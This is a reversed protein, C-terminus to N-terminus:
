RWEGQLAFAAWYYPPRWQKQKWLDVQADRLALSAPKGEKLMGEYFHRMLEATAHDDVNWLSSVVRAAGAYMFGRTLGLLGEGKVEKGLATQCASLVVLDAGLKLNYIEHLRLFGDQPQGKQDVLSLVVGSLEPHLSNLLGHTAFHLIRYDSLDASSATEHSAAFDVAKLGKQASVLSAIADAEQRSFRLRRFSMLGSEKASREVESSSNLQSASAQQPKKEGSTQSTSVRSDDSAFVPDALVAVAKPAPARGALERRLEALVSASPLSVIEHGVILPTFTQPNRIASRPDNSKGAGSRRGSQPAPLAAFPIYQLAGDSVILLRKAGLQSDAPGLVMQSLASAANLYEGDAHGVRVRRHEPTESPLRQNRATLLDHVRRAAAEIEARKPLEFSSISSPTVAWLFSREEGLSYELLVTHQDLLEQQIQKLSLPRPQTLAAYRPSRTRIQAQVEQYEALLANVEQHATKIVEETQRSNLLRLRYQEKGNLQQQLTRERELLAPEVGHRINARAEALTDLLSRARARESAQLAVADLSDSPRNQHLRMLLDIYFEYDNQRAALYTARLEPSVVRARLSETIDLAAEISARSEDLDGWDRKSRAILVLTGAEGRPNGVVRMLSLAQTYCELAKQKEGLASYLEGLNARMAAEWSRGGLAQMLSLAQAYYELAKQKEGLAFYIGGLDALGIAVGRRDGSARRLSLAQTYYELAKQKEGRASHVSGISNLVLGEGRRDGVARKLPLSREYYELAKQSEGLSLYVNGINSLTEAEGARDKIAQYLPVARGYHELAKQIEGLEYYAVGMNNHTVAEGRSDGAAQRLPLAQNYYELAKQNEGLNWYVAGINHLTIAEGYRDGAARRLPLAQHYYDLAQQNDGLLRSVLGISHLAEAEKQQDSISRWLPVAAKYKELAQRLSEATGQMRLLRGQAYVGEASVRIRDQPTAKRREEAKVAYRGRAADKDVPRVELWYVGSVEAVVSLRERRQAGDENNVETLLQHDPGTLKVIVDISLQEIIVRLHEGSALLLSYTHAEGGILEREIPADSQLVTAEQWTKSIASNSSPKSLRVKAPGTVGAPGSLFLAVFLAMDAKLWGKWLFLHYLM